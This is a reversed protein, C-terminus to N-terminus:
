VFASSACITHSCLTDYSVPVASLFHRAKKTYLVAFVTGLPFSCRLFRHLFPLISPPLLVSFFFLSEVARLHFSPHPLPASVSLVAPCRHLFLSDVTTIFCLLSSPTLLASVSFRVACRHRSRSFPPAVMCLRCRRM